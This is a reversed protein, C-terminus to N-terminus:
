MEDFDLLFSPFLQVFDETLLTQDAFVSDLNLCLLVLPATGPSVAHSPRLHCNIRSGRLSELGGRCTSPTMTSSALHSLCIM